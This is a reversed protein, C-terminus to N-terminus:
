KLLAIAAIIISIWTGVAAFFAILLSEDTINEVEVSVRRFLGAFLYSIFAVMLLFCAKGWFALDISDTAALFGITGLSLFTMCLGIIRLMSFISALLSSTLLKVAEDGKISKRRMFPMCFILRINYFWSKMSDTHKDPEKGETQNNLQQESVGIRGRENEYKRLANVIANELVTDSLVTKSDYRKSEDAHKSLNKRSDQGKHKSKGM